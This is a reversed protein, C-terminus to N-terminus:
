PLDTWTGGNNTCESEAVAIDQPADDRVISRQLLGDERTQECIADADDRPCPGDTEEYVIPPTSPAECMARAVESAGSGVIEVCNGAVRPEVDLFLACGDIEEGSGGGTGPSGGTETAGGTAPAGGSGTAGGSTGGGSPATGGTASGGSGPAGGSPAGGGTSSDGGSAGGSSAGGSSAGGSSTSGGTSTGGGTGTDSPGGSDGCAIAIGLFAFLLAGHLIRTM